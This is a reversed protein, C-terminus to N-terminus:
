VRACLKNWEQVITILRTQFIILQKNTTPQFHVAKLPLYASIADVLQLLVQSIELLQSDTIDQVKETVAIIFTYINLCRLAIKRVPLTFGKGHLSYTFEQMNPLHTSLFQTKDLRDHLIDQIRSEFENLTLQWARLWVRLFYIRPFLLMLGLTCLMIIGSNLIYVLLQPWNGGYPLIFHIFVLAQIFPIMFRLYTFKKSFTYCSYTFLGVVLVVLYRYEHVITLLVSYVITLITFVIMQKVRNDFGHERGAVLLAFAPIPLIKLFDPFAYVFNILLLGTVVFTTQGASVLFFGYPDYAQMKKRWTRIIEM